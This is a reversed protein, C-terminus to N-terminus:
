LRMRWIAEGDEGVNASERSFKEYYDFLDDEVNRDLGVYLVSHVGCEVARDIVDQAFAGHCPRCLMVVSGKEYPFATGDAMTVQMAPSQHRHIDLPIAQVGAASLGKAVHGAGAGVDFVRRSGCAEKMWQYFAEAPQFFQSM